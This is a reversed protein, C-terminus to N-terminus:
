KEALEIKLSLILQESLEYTALSLKMTHLQIQSLLFLLLSYVTSVPLKHDIIGGFVNKKM